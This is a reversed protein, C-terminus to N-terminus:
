AVATATRMAAPAAGAPGTEPLRFLPILVAGHVVALLLMAGGFGMPGDKVVGVAIPLVFGGLQGVLMLLGLAAGVKTPGVTRIELPMALLLPAFAGGGLAGIALFPLAHEPQVFAIAVLALSALIAGAFVIPRRRGIRDSVVPGVFNAVGAACLWGAVAVGVEAPALGAETLARPLLGLLSLYGGFLLFHMAAVRALAPDRLLVISDVFRAHRSLTGRDRVLAYWLIAAVVMAIAAVVMAARWGGVAPALVTRGFLVTLATGATYGLLALGNARGLATAPVHGALAKPIAPAVFGVHMGFALMALALTWADTTLARAACAVAGVVMAIAGVRRAGHRDVAAGGVPSALAIGLSAAGWVIAGESHSLSLEGAIQPMLAPVLSWGLGGGIAQMAAGMGTITRPRAAPETAMGAETTRRLM